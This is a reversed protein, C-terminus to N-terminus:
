AAQEEGEFVFLYRLCLIPLVAAVIQSEVDSEITSMHIAFIPGQTNDM